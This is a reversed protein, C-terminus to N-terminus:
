CINEVYQKSTEKTLVVLEDCVNEVKWIVTPLQKGRQEMAVSCLPSCGQHETIM